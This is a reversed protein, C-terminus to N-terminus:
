PVNVSAALLMNQCVPDVALGSDVANRDDLAESPFNNPQQGTSDHGGVNFPM